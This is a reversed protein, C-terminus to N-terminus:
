ARGQLVALLTAVDLGEVRWGEPTILVRAPRAPAARALPEAAIAIRRLPQGVRHRRLRMISRLETM